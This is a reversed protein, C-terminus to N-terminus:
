SFEWCYPEQIMFGRFCDGEYSEGDVEFEVSAHIFGEQGPIGTVNFYTGFQNSPSLIEAEGVSWWSVNQCPINADPGCGISIWGSYGPYVNLPGTGITCFDSSGDYPDDGGPNDGGPNDGPDDTQNGGDGVTIDATSIVGTYGPPLNDFTSRGTLDGRSPEGGTFGTGDTSSNSLSGDLSDDLRYDTDDPESGRGNEFCNLEFYESEGTELQASSPIFECEFDPQTSTIDSSCEAIGSRYVLQGSAGPASTVYADAFQSSRSWFEGSIGVFEWDEGQCSVEDGGLDYCTVEYLYTMDVMHENEPPEIECTIPGELSVSDTCSSSTGCMPAVTEGTFTLTTGGSGSTQEILVVLTKSSGPNVDENFGNSSPCVSSSFGLTSCISVPFPDVLYGSRSSSVDTFQILDDDNRMRVQVLILDEDSLSASAEVSTEHFGCAGGQVVTITETHSGTTGANSGSGFSPQNQTYYTMYFFQNDLDLPYKAAVAFCEVNTLRTSIQHTGEDLDLSVSDTGPMTFTDIVTSGDRVQLTGKCFVNADARKGSQRDTDFVNYTVPTSYFPGLDNYRSPSQTFANSDGFNNHDTYKSSSIWGINRTSTSGGDVMSPCNGFDCYPWLAEASNISWSASVTPNLVISSGTTSSSACVEDGNNITQGDQTMTFDTSISLDANFSGSPFDTSLFNAAFVFSSFILFLSLYKMM